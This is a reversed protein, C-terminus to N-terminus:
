SNKMVVAEILDAVSEFSDCCEEFRHFTERWIILEIPDDTSTFLRRVAKTYLKDGEEELKNIEIIYDKLKDSKKFNAFEEIAEVLKECCRIIIVTFDLAESRLKKVNYTYLKLLVDEIDDTVSDLLHCMENIDEREIPPLFEKVLNEMMNHKENDAAHEIEHMEAIKKVLTEENYNLIIENLLKAARLSHGTMNSFVKFYDIKNKAM